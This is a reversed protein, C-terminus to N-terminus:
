RDGVNANVAPLADGSPIVWDVTVIAGGATVTIAIRTAIETYGDNALLVIFYDGAAPATIEVSGSDTLAGGGTTGHHYVWDTSSDSGPVHGAAYLGVWDTASSAGTFTVQIAAGAVYPGESIALTPLATGGGCEIHSVGSNSVVDVVSFAAGSATADFGNPGQDEVTNGDTNFNYAVLLGTSSADPCSDSGDTEISWVRFSALMGNMSRAQNSGALWGGLRPSDFNVNVGAEGARTEQLANNVYLKIYNNTVSYVVSLLNWEGATRGASQRSDALVRSFYQSHLSM